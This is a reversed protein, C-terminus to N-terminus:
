NDPDSACEICGNHPGGDPYLQSGSEGDGFWRYGCADQWMFRDEMHCDCFPGNLRYPIWPWPAQLWGCECLKGHACEGAEFADCCAIAPFTSKIDVLAAKFDDQAQTLRPPYIPDDPWKSAFFEALELEISSFIAEGAKKSGFLQALDPLMKAGLVHATRGQAAAAAARRRARDTTLSPAAAPPAPPPAARTPAPPPPMSSHAAIAEATPLPLKVRSSLVQAEAQAPDKGKRKLKKKLKKVEAPIKEPLKAAAKGVAEALEWSLLPLGLVDGILMGQAGYKDLLGCPRHPAYRDFLASPLGEVVSIVDRALAYSPALTMGSEGSPVVAGTAGSFMITARQSLVALSVAAPPVESGDDHGKVQESGATTARGLCPSVHHVIVCPVREGPTHYSVRFPTLHVREGSSGDIPKLVEAADVPVDMASSRFEEETGDDISMAEVAAATALEDM